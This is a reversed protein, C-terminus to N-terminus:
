MCPSKVRRVYVYLVQSSPAMAVRENVDCAVDNDFSASEKRESTLVKAKALCALAQFVDKTYSTVM